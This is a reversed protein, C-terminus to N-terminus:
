ISAEAEERGEGPDVAVPPRPWERTNIGGLNSRAGLASSAWPVLESGLTDDGDNRTDRVDSDRLVGVDGLAGSIGSMEFARVLWEASDTGDASDPDGSPM